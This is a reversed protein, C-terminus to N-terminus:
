AFGDILELEQTKSGSNKLTLRRVLGPFSDNPLQFYLVDSEIGLASNLEQIELEASSVIMKQSVAPDDTKLFPEYIDSGMKLFTRFGQLGVCELAKNFPLFEMIQHNKDRVGASCVGQNRSVYYTWLPVGYRGAIGPFFNAFSTEWNYNEIVFKGEKTLSYMIDGEPM